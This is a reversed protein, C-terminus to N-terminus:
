QSQKVGAVPCFRFWQVTGFYDLEVAQNKAAPIFAICGGVDYFHGYGGIGASNNTLIAFPHTGSVSISFYGDEPATYTTGPTGATLSIYTNGPMGLDAILQKGDDTINSLNANAIAPADTILYETGQDITPLADYEAQTLSVINRVTTSQVSSDPTLYLDNQELTGLEALQAETLDHITLTSIPTTTVQTTM